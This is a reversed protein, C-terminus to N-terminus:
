NYWCVKLFHDVNDREKSEKGTILVLKSELDKLEDLSYKKQALTKDREELYMHILELPKLQFGKAHSRGVTYSGYNTINNMQGFSSKEVSGQVEKM